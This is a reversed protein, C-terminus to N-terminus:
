DMAELLKPPMRFVFAVRKNQPQCPDSNFYIFLLYLCSIKPDNMQDYREKHGCFVNSQSIKQSYQRALRHRLKGSFDVLCRKTQFGFHEALKPSCNQLFFIYHFNQPMAIMAITTSIALEKSLWTVGAQSAAGKPCHFRMNVFGCQRGSSDPLVPRPKSLCSWFCRVTQALHM